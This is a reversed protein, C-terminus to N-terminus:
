NILPKIRNLAVIFMSLDPNPENKLEAIFNDFRETLFSSKKCYNSILENINKFNENTSFIAIDKSLKM